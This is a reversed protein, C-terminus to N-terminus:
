ASTPMVDVQDAVTEPERRLLVPLAEGALDLLDVVGGGYRGCFGPEVLEGVFPCRQIRRHHL